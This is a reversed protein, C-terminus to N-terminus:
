PSITAIYHLTYTTYPSPKTYSYFSGAARSVERVAPEKQTPIAIGFFVM